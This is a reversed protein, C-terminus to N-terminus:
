RRREPTIDLIQADLFPDVALRMDLVARSLHVFAGNLRQVLLTQESTDQVVGDPLQRAVRDRAVRAESLAVLLEDIDCAITM